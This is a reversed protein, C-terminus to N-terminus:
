AEDEHGGKENKLIFRAAKTARAAAMIFLKNDAKIANKWNQLYAMSNNESTENSIGTEACIFAATLEATLEEYGYDHNNGFMGQTNVVEKRNLRNQHGTSHAMEHFNVSYFENSTRFQNLMPMNILDNSPAYYAQSTEHVNYKLTNNNELYYNIVHNGREDETKETYPSKPVEGVKPENIKVNECQELNFVTYYRLLLAKKKKIEGTADDKEDYINIKWFVVQTGHEGRKVNGKLDTVQKYTLWYKSEYPMSDLLWFNVGEYRHKTVGNMPFNGGGVLSPNYKWPKVWSLKQNEEITKLIRDTVMQYVNVAPQNSNKM